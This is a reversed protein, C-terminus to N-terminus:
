DHRDGLLVLIHLFLEIIDVYLSMAAFVYDDVTLSHSHKGGIMTQTDWIIYFCFVLVGFGAWVKQIVSPVPLIFSWLTLVIGFCTLGLLAAILYPGMGTFDSSTCCAYATLCLFTLGSVAVALLVSEVTYLSTVFGVIIGQFFTFCFLLMYNWPFTRVAQQCCCSMGFLIGMSAALSLYYLGINAVVFQRDVYLTFPAAVAATVLLQCSLIGYVKRIFGGRDVAEATHLRSLHKSRHPSHPRHHDQAHHQDQNLAAERSSTVEMKQM